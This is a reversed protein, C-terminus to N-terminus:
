RPFGYQELNVAITTSKGAVIDFTRPYRWVDSELRIRHSGAALRLELAAAVGLSRDDIFIEAAPAVRLVLTGCAEGTGCALTAGNAARQLGEAAARSSPDLGSAQRFLRQADDYRETDFAATAQQLLEQVDRRVLAARIRRAGVLAAPSDADVGLARDYLALAGDLDGTTEAAGADTLLRDVSPGASARPPTPRAPLSAPPPAPAPPRAPEPAPAENEPGSDQPQAVAVPVPDPEETGPNVERAAPPPPTTGASGLGRPDTGGPGAIDVEPGQGGWSTLWLGGSVAVVFVAAVIALTVSLGPRKEAGGRRVLRRRRVIRAGANGSRATGAQKEPVDGNAPLQNDGPLPITSEPEHDDTEVRAIAADIEAMVQSLHQYRDTARKAIARHVVRILEPDLGPALDALPPPAEHVIKYIVTLANDGSFARRYSLLEYCVLGVAFIDCRHDVDSGDIQEPAMYNPTGVMLGRSTLADAMQAIGFDVITVAGSNDRAIVNAPKVDRHIIGRSHAYALGDCLERMLRLRRLLPLPTKLRVLEALTRGPVYEMAIFPEGGHEGVDYITVINRHQLRGTARAERLFRQRLKVDHVRAVKLAVTRDIAPDRALYVVGMGGSGLREVVRYRGIFTPLNPM